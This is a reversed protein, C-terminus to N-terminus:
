NPVSTSPPHLSGVCAGDEGVVDGDKALACIVNAAIAAYGQANPHFTGSYGDKRGSSKAPWQTIFSDNATRVDRGSDAYPHWLFASEASYHKPWDGSCWGRLKFANATRAVKWGARNQAIVKNLPEIVVKQDLQAEEPALNFMWGKGFGFPILSKFSTWQNNVNTWAGNGCFLGRGDGSPIAQNPIAKTYPNSEDSHLPNPYQIALVRDPSVGLLSQFATQLVQLRVPLDRIRDTASLRTNGGPIGDVTVTGLMNRAKDVIRQTVFNKGYPPVLSNAIVGSFGVDNGGISLLIQDVALMAEKDHCQHLDTILKIQDKSTVGHKNKRGSAYQLGFLPRKIAELTSLSIRESKSAPCLLDVAARLQSYRADCGYPQDEAAAAKHNKLESCTRELHGPPKAQPKLMGDVVEAGACALHVFIVVEHSHTPESAADLAVLSQWSYFSRNCLNSEWSAGRVAMRDLSVFELSERPVSPASQPKKWQTPVDPAGEGAAYSDGLGLVVYRKIEPVVIHYQLNTGDITATITAGASPVNDLPVTADCPAIRVPDGDAIQWHCSHGNWLSQNGVKPDLWTAITLKEPLDMYGAKYTGKADDWPSARESTYPSGLEIVRRAWAKPDESAGRRYKAFLEAAKSDDVFDLPRFRNAVEWKIPSAPPEGAAFSDRFTLGFVLLASVARLLKYWKM